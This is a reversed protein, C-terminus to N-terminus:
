RLRSLDAPDGAFRSGTLTRLRERDAAGSPTEEIEGLVWLLTEIRAQREITGSMPAQEEIVSLIEERSRIEQEQERRDVLEGWSEGSGRSVGIEEPDLSYDTM